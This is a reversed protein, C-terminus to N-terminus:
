GDCSVVLKDSAAYDLLPSGQYAGNGPEDTVADKQSAAYDPLPSGQHAGNGPDDTVADERFSLLWATSIWPTSPRGESCVLGQHAGNAADNKLSFRTTGLSQFEEDSFYEMNILGHLVFYSPFECSVLCLLKM